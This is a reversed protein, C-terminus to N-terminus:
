QKSHKRMKSIGMNLKYFLATFFPTAGTRAEIVEMAPVGYHPKITHLYLYRLVALLLYILMVPRKQCKSAGATGVHKM